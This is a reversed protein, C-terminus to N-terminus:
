PGSGENGDLRVRERPVALGEAITRAVTEADLLPAEGPTLWLDIHDVAGEVTLFVAARAEYGARRAIRVCYAEAQNAAASLAARVYSEGAAAADAAAPLASEVQIDMLSGLGSILAAMVLVSVTMRAMKQLRGEPLLLESLSWLVSLVALQRVFADM